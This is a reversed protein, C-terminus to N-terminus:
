KNILQKFLDPNTRKLELREAETMDKLPKSVFSAAGGGALGGGSVVVDPKILHKLRNAKKLVEAKYQAIDTISVAKGSEDRLSIEGDANVIMKELLDQIAEQASEDKALEISLTKRLSKVQENVQQLKFDKQLEERIKERERKLKDEFQENRIREAEENNGASLAEKLAEERAAERAAQIQSERELESQTKYEDFSQRTQTVELDKQQLKALTDKDLYGGDVEVFSAKVDDSFTEYLEKTIAM